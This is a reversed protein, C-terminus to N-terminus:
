EDKDLVEPCFPKDMRKLNPNAKFRKQPRRFLGSYRDPRHAEPIESNLPPPFDCTDLYVESLNTKREPSVTAYRSHLRERHSLLMFRRGTDSLNPPSHLLSINLGCCFDEFRTSSFQTVSRSM